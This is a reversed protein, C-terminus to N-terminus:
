QNDPIKQIEKESVKVKQAIEPISLDMDAYPKLYKPVKLCELLSTHPPRWCKMGFHLVMSIVPYRGTSDSLLQSIIEKGYFLLGNVIDAFVNNCDKLVKEISDQEGM